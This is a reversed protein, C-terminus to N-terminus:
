WLGGKRVGESIVGEMRERIKNLTDNDSIPKINGSSDQEVL